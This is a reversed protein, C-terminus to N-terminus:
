RRTRNQSVRYTREFTEIRRLGIEVAREHERQRDTNEEPAKDDSGNPEEDTCNALVRAAALGLPTWTDNDQEFADKTM